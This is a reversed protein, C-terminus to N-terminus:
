LNFIKAVKIIERSSVLNLKRRIKLIQSKVTNPKKGLREAIENFRMGTSCARAVEKEAQSLEAKGKPNCIVNEYPCVGGRLPCRVMEFNMIDYEIDQTLLDHEGFNCRVFRAVMDFERGERSKKPHHGYLEDLKAYCEPFRDAVMGLVPSVIDRSFKTLRKEEQGLVKYYIVGDPSFRFEVTEM